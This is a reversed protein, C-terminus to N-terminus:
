FRLVLNSLYLPIEQLHPSIDLNKTLQAGISIPSAFDSSQFLFPKTLLNRFSTFDFYHTQDLYAQEQQILMTSCCNHQPNVIQASASIQLSVPCCSCMAISPGLILLILLIVSIKKLMPFTYCLFDFKTKEKEKKLSLYLIVSIIL